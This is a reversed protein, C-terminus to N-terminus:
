ARLAVNRSSHGVFGQSGRAVNNNKFLLLSRCTKNGNALNCCQQYQQVTPKSMHIRRVRSNKDRSLGKKFGFQYMHCDVADNIHRLIVTEFIKTAANSLAIARYNDVNTLDGGKNKVQPLIVSEICASPLYCHEMCFTTSKFSCKLKDGAYIYSEMYLGNPGASKNKNQQGVAESVDTPRITINHYRNNICANAKFEHKSKDGDDVSNYLNSFQNKWM